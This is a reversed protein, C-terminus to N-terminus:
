KILMMKKTSTFKDTQIRYFYLGTPLASADWGVTYVGQNKVESVLKAIEKGLMDYIVLNVYAREPISYKITTVPNFPNPYNQMLEYKEAVGSEIQSISVASSSAPFVGSIM